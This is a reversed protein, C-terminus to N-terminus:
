VKGSEVITVKVNAAGDRIAYVAATNQEVYTQGPAVYIGKTPTVGNNGIRIGNTETDPIAIKIELRDLNQAAILTAAVGVTVDDLPTLFAAIESTVNVSSGTLNITSGEALAVVPPVADDIVVVSRDANPVYDGTGMFFRVTNEATHQNRIVFSDFNKRPLNLLREVTHTEVVKNELMLDVIVLGTQDYCYLYNCNGSIIKVQGGVPIVLLGTDSKTAM